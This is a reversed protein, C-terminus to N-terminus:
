FPIGDDDFRTPEAMAAVSAAPEKRSSDLIRITDTYIRVASHQVGQRDTWREQKLTGQIVVPVGKLLKRSMDEALKKYAACDFFSTSEMWQGADDKRSQNVALSFSLAPTGKTTYKLEADKVIRGTLLINNLDNM